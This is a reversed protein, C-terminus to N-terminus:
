RRGESEMAAGVDRPVGRTLPDQPLHFVWVNPCPLFAHYFSWAAAFWSCPLAATVEFRDQVAPLSQPGQPLIFSHELVPSTTDLSLLLGCGHVQRSSTVSTRTGNGM